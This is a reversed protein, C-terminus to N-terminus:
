SSNTNLTMVDKIKDLFMRNFTIKKTKLRKKTGDQLTMEIPINKDQLRLIKQKILNRRNSDKNRCQKAEKGYLAESCFRSGKRQDSIDRGCVVCFCPDKSDKHKPPKVEKDERNKLVKYPAVENEKGDAKGEGLLEAWKEAVKKYLFVSWDICGYENLRKKYLEKAKYRYQRKDFGKWYNPNSYQKWKLREIKPLHQAKHNFDFFVVEDLRCLLFEGLLVLRQKDLLDSLTKVGCHEVIDMRKIKVEVRLIHKGSIDQQRSKDYIKVEYNQYSCSKGMLKDNKDILNFPKTKHCIASNIIAYPVNDLLLNVGIEISHLITTELNISFNLNLYSLTKALDNYSFDNHNTNDKNYFKHLSGKIHCINNESIIFKMGDCEAVRKKAIEGTKRSLTSKFDLLPNSEWVSPQLGNCTASIFDIM